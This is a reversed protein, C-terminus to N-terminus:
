CHSDGSPYNLFGITVWDFSQIDWSNKLIYWLGLSTPKLVLSPIFKGSVTLALLCFFCFNGEERDQIYAAVLLHPWLNLTTREVEFSKRKFGECTHTGLQKPMVQNWMYDLQCGFIATVYLLNGFKAWKVTILERKHGDGTTQAHLALCSILIPMSFQLLLKQWM